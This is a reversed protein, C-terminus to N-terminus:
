RPAFRATLAATAAAVTQAFDSALGVAAPGDTTVFATRWTLVVADDTRAVSWRGSWDTV